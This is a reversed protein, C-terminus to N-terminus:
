KCIAWGGKALVRIGAPVKIQGSGHTDWVTIGNEDKFLIDECAKCYFDRDYSAQEFLHVPKKHEDAFQMTTSDQWSDRLDAETIAM